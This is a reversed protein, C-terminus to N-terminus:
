LFREGQSPILCKGRLVPQLAICLYSSEGQHGISSVISSFIVFHQLEKMSLSLDHLNWAGLAKPRVAKNWSEGDQSPICCLNACSGRSLVYSQCQELESQGALHLLWESSVSKRWLNHCIRSCVEFLSQSLTM